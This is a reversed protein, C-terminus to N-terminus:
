EWRGPLAHSSSSRRSATAIVPARWYQKLLYSEEGSRLRFVRNNAGGPLPELMLEGHAAGTRDLLQRALELLDAESV